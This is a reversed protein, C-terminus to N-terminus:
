SAGPTIEPPVGQCGTSNGAFEIADTDSWTRATGLTLTNGSRATVTTAAGGGITISDGAYIVNSTTPATITSQISRADNVILTVSSAGAGNATTIPVGSTCGKSASLDNDSFVTPDSSELAGLSTTTGNANISVSSDAFANSILKNNAFQNSVQWGASIDYEFYVPGDSDAAFYNLLYENSDVRTDPYDPALNEMRQSTFEEIGDVILDFDNQLISMEAYFPAVPNARDCCPSSGFVWDAGGSSEYHEFTNWRVVTGVGHFKAAVPNVGAAIADGGRVINKEFVTSSWTSEDAMITVARYGRNDTYTSNDFTNGSIYAHTGKFGLLDHNGDTITNNVIRAHSGAANFSIFDNYPGDGEIDDGGDDFVNSDLTVDEWVGDFMIAGFTGGDAGSWTNNSLVIGIGGDSYFLRDTNGSRTQDIGDITIYDNTGISICPSNVGGCQGTFSPRVEVAQVTSVGCLLAVLLGFSRLM